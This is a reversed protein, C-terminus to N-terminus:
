AGNPWPVLALLVRRRWRLTGPRGHRDRPYGIWTIRWDQLQPETPVVGDKLRLAAACERVMAADTAAAADAATTTLFARCCSGPWLETNLDGVIITSINQRFDDDDDNANNEFFFQKARQLGGTLQKVRKREEKADLHLCTVVVEDIVAGMSDHREHPLRLCVSVCTTTDDHNRTRYRWWGQKILLGCVIAVRQGLVRVNRAAMTDLASLPPLQLQYRETMPTLWAPLRYAYTTM